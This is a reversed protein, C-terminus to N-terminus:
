MKRKPKNLKINTVEVKSLLKHKLADVKLNTIVYQENSSYLKKNGHIMKVLQIM